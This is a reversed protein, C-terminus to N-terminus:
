KICINTITWQVKKLVEIYESVKEFIDTM